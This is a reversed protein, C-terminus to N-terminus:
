PTISEHHQKWRKQLVGKQLHAQGPTLYNCSSHPRQENYVQIASDVAQKAEEFNRFAKDLNFETKLIGNIREAIANEYPDGQETMSITIKNDGLLDTYEKSCYQLGRDSHHILMKERPNITALAMKLATLPGEKQLTPYLCYGVVKRSYGDTILSLYSHKGTLPIYTIDSVWLRNPLMVVLTKILNPYKKFPHNSDTTIIKRRKRRRIQLGYGAMIDFFKDRGLEINNEQLPEKLLYFLKRGGIRPMQARIEAIMKVIIAEQYLQKREEKLFKYYAQRSKGFM